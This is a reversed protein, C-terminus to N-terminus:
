RHFKGDLEEFSWFVHNPRGHPCSNRWRTQSFDDLLKQMEEPHMSDGFMVSGRCSSYETLKRMIQDVPHEGIRDNEFYEALGQFVEALNADKILSPVHTVRLKTMGSFGITFGIERLNDRHERLISIENESLEINQPILLKQQTTDSSQYNDWKTEFREREHLAHQDFLYLGKESKALIYKNELQGVLQLRSHDNESEPSPSSHSQAITNQSYTAEREQYRESFNGQQSPFNLSQRSSQSNFGGTGSHLPTEEGKGFPSPFYSPSYSSPPAKQLSETIAHKVLSFIEQPESFRVELKRPHVNVDVLIPDIELFLVFVPQLHKEIGASQVYAERVAFKIKHDEIARGNVFLYQHTRTKACEGPHCVFGSLQMQNGVGHVELFNQSLTGLVQQARDKKGRTRPYDLSIKGNHYLQFSRDPYALAFNQVERVISRYETAETKLYNLRAPTTYFLDQVKILTGKNAPVHVTTKNKGGELSIQTGSEGREVKTVLNFRSVSAIAALAEGRFGFSQISFIDNITKIKSTAHRMVCRSADGDDMGVGNDIVEILKKGGEEIKIAIHDAEADLANEILEKVVSAPREVVEGAAIQDSVSPPLINIKM